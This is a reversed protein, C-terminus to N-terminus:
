KCWDWTEQLCGFHWAFTEEAALPKYDKTAMWMFADKAIAGKTPDLIVPGIAYLPRYPQLMPSDTTIFGNELLYKMDEDSKIIPTDDAASGNKKSFYEMMEMGEKSFAKETYTVFFVERIGLPNQDRTSLIADGMIPAQRTGAFIYSLRDRTGPDRFVYIPFQSATERALLGEADNTFGDYRLEGLPYWFSPEGSLNYTPLTVIIRVDTHNPNSSKDFVSLGDSGTRRGTIAKPNVGNKLYFTDTFDHPNIATDVVPIPGLNVNQAPSSAASVLFIFIFVFVVPWSRTNLIRNVAKGGKNREVGILEKAFTAV